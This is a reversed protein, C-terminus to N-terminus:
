NKHIKIPYAPGCLEIDIFVLKFYHM